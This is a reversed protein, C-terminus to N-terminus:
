KLWEMMQNPKLTRKILPKDSAFDLPRVTRKAVKADGKLRVLIAHLWFLEKARAEPIDGILCYTFQAANGFHEDFQKSLGDFQVSKYFAENQLPNEATAPYLLQRISDQVADMGTTPRNDYLYLSRQIYKDFM